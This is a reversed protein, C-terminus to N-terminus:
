AGGMVRVPLQIEKGPTSFGSDIISASSFCVPTQLGQGCQAKSSTACQREGVSQAPGCIEYGSQFASLAGRSPVRGAVADRREQLGRARVRRKPTRFICALAQAYEGRM